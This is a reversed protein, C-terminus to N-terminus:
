ICSGDVDRLDSVASPSSGLPRSVTAWSTWADAVASADDGPGSRCVERSLQLNRAVEGLGSLPCSHLTVSLGEMVLM